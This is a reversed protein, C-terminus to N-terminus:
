SNMVLEANLRMNILMLRFAFADGEKEFYARIGKEDVVAFWNEPWYINGAERATKWDDLVSIEDLLYDLDHIRKM